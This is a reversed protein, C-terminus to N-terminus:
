TALRFSKSWQAAIEGSPPLDGVDAGEIPTPLVTCGSLGEGELTTTAVAVMHEENVRLVSVLFRHRLVKAVRMGNEAPKARRPQANVSEIFNM